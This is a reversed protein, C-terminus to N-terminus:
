LKWRLFQIYNTKESDKVHRLTLIIDFAPKYNATELLIIIECDSLVDSTINLLLLAWHEPNLNVNPYPFWGDEVMPKKIVIHLRDWFSTIIWCDVASSALRRSPVGMSLPSPHEDHFQSSFEKLSGDDQKQWHLKFHNWGLSTCIRFCYSEISHRLVLVLTIIRALWLPCLCDLSGILDRLLQM